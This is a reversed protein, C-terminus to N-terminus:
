LRKVRTVRSRGAAQGWGWLRNLLCSWSFFVCTKQWCGDASCSSTLLRYGLERCWLHIVRTAEHLRGLLAMWECVCACRNTASEVFFNSSCCCLVGGLSIIIIHGVEGSVATSQNRCLVFCLLSTNTLDPVASAPLIKKFKFCVMCKTHLYTRYACLFTLQFRDTQPRWNVIDIKISISVCQSHRINKWIKSFIDPEHVKVIKM